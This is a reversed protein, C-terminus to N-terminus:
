LLRALLWHAVPEPHEMHLHHSGRMLTTSLQAVAAQRDSFLAPHDPWTDIAFVLLEVPITIQALWYLIEAESLRWLSAQRLRRDYRHYWGAPSQGIARQALRQAAQPSLPFQGRQRSQVIQEFSSYYRTPILRGRQQYLQEFRQFNDALASAAPGLGDLCLLLKIRPDVAALLQGLMAGLSHGLIITEPWDLADIVQGLRPLWSLVFQGDAVPLDASEGHGPLDIAWLEIGPLHEALASFSMANDLLGHLALVKRGQGWRVGQVAGDLLSFPTM